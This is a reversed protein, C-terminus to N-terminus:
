SKRAKKRPFRVFDHATLPDGMKVKSFGDKLINVFQPVLKEPFSTVSPPLMCKGLTTCVPKRCIEALKDM